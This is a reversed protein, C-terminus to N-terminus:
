KIRIIKHTKKDLSEIKLEKNSGKIRKRSTGHFNVGWTWYSVIQRIRNYVMINEGIKLLRLREISEYKYMAKEGNVRGNIKEICHNCEDFNNNKSICNAFSKLPVFRGCLKCNVKIKGNKEFGNYSCDISM